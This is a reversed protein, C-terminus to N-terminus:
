FKRMTRFHNFFIGYLITVFRRVLPTYKTVVSWAVLLPYIYYLQRAGASGLLPVIRFFVFFGGEM